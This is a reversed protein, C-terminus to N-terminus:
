FAETKYKFKKATNLCEINSLPSFVVDPPEESNVIAPKSSTNSNTDTNSTWHFTMLM